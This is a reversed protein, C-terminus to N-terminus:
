NNTKVEVAVQQEAEEAKKARIVHDLTRLLKPRIYRQIM